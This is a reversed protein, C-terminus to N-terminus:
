VWGLLLPTDKTGADLWPTLPVQRFGTRPNAGLRRKVNFRAREHEWGSARDGEAQALRPESREKAWTSGTPGQKPDSEGVHRGPGTCEMGLAFGGVTWESLSPSGDRCAGLGRCTRESSQAWEPTFSVRAYTEGVDRGFSSSLHRGRSGDNQVAAACCAALGAVCGSTRWPWEGRGCLSLTRKLFAIADIELYGLFAHLWGGLISCLWQSWSLAFGGEVIVGPVRRSVQGSVACLGQSGSLISLSSLTSPPPLRSISACGLFHALCIEWCTGRTSFGFSIVPVLGCQRGRNYGGLQRVHHDGSGHLGCRSDRACSSYRGLGPLSDDFVNHGVSSTTTAGHWAVPFLVRRGAFSPVGVGFPSSRSNEHRATSGSRGPVYWCVVPLTRHKFRPLIDVQLLRNDWPQEPQDDGSATSALTWSDVLFIEAFVLFLPRTLVLSSSLADSNAAPLFFTETGQTGRVM